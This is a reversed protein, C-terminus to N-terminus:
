ANAQIWSSFAPVRTNVSPFFASGCGNNFSFLGYVVNNHYLPGGEDGRCTDRWGQDLWGSCFMDNTVTIGTHTIYRSACISHNIIQIEVRRLQESGGFQFFLLLKLYATIFYLRMAFEYVRSQHRKGLHCLISSSSSLSFSTVLCTM